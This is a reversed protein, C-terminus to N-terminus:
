SKRDQSEKLLEESSQGFRRQRRAFDDLADKLAQEDFDPWFTDTFYLEAYALQWLLFNSIRREGSTRIFLDVPPIDGLSLYQAFDDQSANLVNQKFEEASTEGDNMSLALKQAAQVIDWQGGYNVAIILQMGTNKQTKEMAANMKDKLLDSFPALDGIFRLRIRNAHLERIQDDLATVFLQMLLEVEYPPRRWNESSFAFLTLYKIGSKVASKVLTKVAKAGERHGEPGPLGNARAWRQNGDMVVALHKVQAASENSGM